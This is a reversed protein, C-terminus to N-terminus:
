RWLAESAEPETELRGTPSSAQLSSGRPTVSVSLSSLGVTAAEGFWLTGRM